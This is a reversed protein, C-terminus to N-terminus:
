ARKQGSPHASDWGHESPSVARRGPRAPRRYGSSPGQTNNVRGQLALLVPEDPQPSAVGTQRSSEQADCVQRFRFDNWLKHFQHNRPNRFLAARLAWRAEDVRGCRYLGDALKGVLNPDDPVLEVARRLAQLGEEENGLRLAVLGFDSLCDPQDPDLELSRRYHEHAALASGSGEGDVALALLYHYRPHNPRHALLVGLHRRAQAFQGHSMRIDALCTHTEQVVEAPLDQWGALRSLLGLADHDRGLQHLQRGKALVHDALNLTRSM